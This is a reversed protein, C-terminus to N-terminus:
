VVDHVVRPRVLDRPSADADEPPDLRKVVPVALGPPALEFGVNVRADPARARLSSVALLQLLSPAAARGGAGEDDLGEILQASKENTTRTRTRATKPASPSGAPSSSSAAPISQRGIAATEPTSPTSPAPPSTSPPSAPETPHGPPATTPRM